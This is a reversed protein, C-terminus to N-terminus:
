TVRGPGSDLHDQRAQPARGGAPRLRRGVRDERRRHEEPLVPHHGVAHQGARGGQRAGEDAERLLGRRGQRRADQRDAQVGRRLLVHVGRKRLRLDPHEQGRLNIMTKGKDKTQETKWTCTFGPAKAAGMQVKNLTGEAVKFQMSKANGVSITERKEGEGYSFYGNRFKYEGPPVWMPKDKCDMLNIFFQANENLGELIMFAPMTNAVYEFQLLAIPGDYPKFRLNQGSPDLKMEFLLDGVYVYRSLPVVRGVKGKSIMVSDDGYADFKGDASDDFITVDWGDFKSTVATAGQWRIRLPDNPGAAKFNMGVGNVTFTNPPEMALFRADVKSGDPLSRQKFTLSRPSESSSRSASRPRRERGTLTSSCSARRTRSPTSERFSPRTRWPRRRGWKPRSGTCGTATRASTRRSCRGGTRRRTPSRRPTSGSSGCRTNTRPRLCRERCPRRPGEAPRPAERREARPSATPARRAGSNVAEADKKALTDAYKKKSEELPVTIDILDDRLGGRSLTKLKAPLTFKAVMDLAKQERATEFSRKYYYAADFKEELKEAIYGLWVYNSVEWYLDKIEAATATAQVYKAAAQQFLPKEGGKEARGLLASAETLVDGMQVRKGAQEPTLTKVWALRDAPMRNKFEQSILSTMKEVVNLRLVKDEDSKNAIASCLQYEYRMYGDAANDPGAKVVLEKMGAYNDGKVAEEFKAMFTEIPDQGLVRLCGLLLLSPILLRTRM